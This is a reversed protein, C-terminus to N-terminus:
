TLYIGRLIAIAEEKSMRIHIQDLSVPDEEMKDLFAAIDRRIEESASVQLKPSVIQLLRFVDLKHKRLDKDNVHQGNAKRQTLDLWAYMKFPILYEPKLVSLGESLTRGHLMFTYYEENLLIASLSSIHDDIHIPVIGNPIELHYDPTRSFLEIQSPYGAQAPETFRYFHVSDSTKWGCRYGGERIYEWFKEAFEPFQDELILIVDVDKTTRFDLGAEDMLLSCATGGIVTYCDPFDRFQSIFSKLGNVM